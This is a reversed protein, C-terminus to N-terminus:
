WARPRAARGRALVLSDVILLPLALVMFATAFVALRAPYSFRAPLAAVAIGAVVSGVGLLAQLM